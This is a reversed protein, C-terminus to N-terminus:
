PTHLQNQMKAVCDPCLITIAFTTDSNDHITCNYKHQTCRYCLHTHTKMHENATTVFLAWEQQHSQMTCNRCWPIDSNLGEANHCDPCEIEFKPAVERELEADSYDTNSLGSQIDLALEEAQELSDAEIESELTLTRIYLIKYKTTM